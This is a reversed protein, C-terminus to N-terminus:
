AKQPLWFGGNASVAAGVIAEFNSYEPHLSWAAPFRRADSGSSVRRKSNHSTRM